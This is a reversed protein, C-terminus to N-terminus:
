SWKQNTQKNIKFIREKDPYAGPSYDKSNFMGSGSAIAASPRRKIIDGVLRSDM